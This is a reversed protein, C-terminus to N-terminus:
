SEELLTIWDMEDEEWPTGEVEQEGELQARRKMMENWQEDSPVDDPDVAVLKCVRLFHDPYCVIENLLPIGGARQPFLATLVACREGKLTEEFHIRKVIIPEDDDVIDLFFPNCLNSIGRGDPCYQILWCVDRKFLMHRMGDLVDINM